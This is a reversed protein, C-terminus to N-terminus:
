FFYYVKNQKDGANNKYQRVMVTQRRENNPRHTITSIKILSFQYISKFKLFSNGNPRVKKKLRVFLLRNIFETTSGKSLSRNTRITEM